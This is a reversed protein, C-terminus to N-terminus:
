VINVSTLPNPCHSLSHALKEALASIWKEDSKSYSRPMNSGVVLLGQRDIPQVIVAQTNPPLYTFEIRGPYLTLNALYIPKQTHLCRQAISGLQAHSPEPLKGRHLLVQQGYYIYVVQTPTNNLLSHSAWALELKVSEPFNEALVFGDKGELMVAEPDQTQVREWLLGLFVALGALMIGVADARTQSPTPDITFLRNLGLALAGLIGAGLTIRQM